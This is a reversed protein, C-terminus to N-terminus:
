GSLFLGAPFYAGTKTKGFYSGNLTYTDEPYERLMRLDSPNFSVSFGSQAPIIMPDLNVVRSFNQSVFYM